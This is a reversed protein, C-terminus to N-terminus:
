QPNNQLWTNVSTNWQDWNTGDDEQILLELMERAQDKLPHDGDRAVDLLMPLKLNNNRNLLDNMLVTSVATPTSANTLLGAAGDYHDDSVMNVLHQALEVQANTPATPIMALIRDGKANADVDSLLVDDLQKEWEMNEEAPPGSAPKEQAAFRHPKEQPVPAPTPVSTMAVPASEETPQSPLPAVSIPRIDDQGKMWGILVGIGGALVLVAVVKLVKVFVSM